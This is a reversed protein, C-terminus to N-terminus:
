TMNDPDDDGGQNSSSASPEGSSQGEAETEASGLYWRIGGPRDRKYRGDAEGRRLENGISKVSIEPELELVLAEYEKISKGPELELAMAVTNQVLGRAVRPKHQPIPVDTDIPYRDESTKPAETVPGNAFASPMKLNLAPFAFTPVKVFKTVDVNLSSAMVGMAEALDGLKNQFSGVSEVGAAFGQDYAAQTIARLFSELGHDTDELLKEYDFAM